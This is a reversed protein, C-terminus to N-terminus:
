EVVAVAVVMEGWFREGVVVLLLLLLRAAAAACLQQLWGCCLSSCSALLCWGNSQLGLLRLQQLQWAAQLVIV